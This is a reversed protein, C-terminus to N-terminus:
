VIVNENSEKALKEHFLKAMGVSDIWHWGMSQLHAWAKPHRKLYAGWGIKHQLIHHERCQPVLNFEEDPGGAGKSRVHCADVKQNIWPQCAICRQSQIKKRLSSTM